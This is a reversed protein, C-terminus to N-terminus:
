SFLITQFLFFLGAFHLKREPATVCIILAPFCYVPSYPFLSPQCSTSALAFQAQSMRLRSWKTPFLSENPSGGQSDVQDTDPTLDGLKPIMSQLFRASGVEGRGLNALARQPWWHVHSLSSIRHHALHIRVLIPTIILHRDLQHSSGSNLELSGAISGHDPQGM